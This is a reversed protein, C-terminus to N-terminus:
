SLLFDHFGCRALGPETVEPVVQGRRRGERLRHSDGKDSVRGAPGYGADYGDLLFLNWCIGEEVEQFHEHFLVAEYGHPPFHCVICGCTQGDIHVAHIRLHPLDSRSLIEPDIRIEEPPVDAPDLQSAIVLPEYAGVPLRSRDALTLRLDM